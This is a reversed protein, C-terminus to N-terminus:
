LSLWLKGDKYGGRVPDKSTLVDPYDNVWDRFRDNSAIPADYDRAVQLIMPDAPMGKPVVMVRDKPLGLLSGLAKDHLYRGSIKYGANADFVVGPTLGAKALTSAVEKVTELKPIGGNWHLVNSGDIVIWNRDVEAGQWWRKLLLLASATACPAALLLWDSLSPNLAAVIVGCISITCITSLLRVASIEIVSFSIVISM